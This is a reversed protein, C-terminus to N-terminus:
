LKQRDIPTLIELCKRRTRLDLNSGDGYMGHSILIDRVITTMKTWSSYEPETMLVVYRGRKGYPYCHFTGGCRGLYWCILKHIIHTM